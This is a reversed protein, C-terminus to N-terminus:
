KLYKEKANQLWMKDDVFFQFKPALDNCLLQHEVRM